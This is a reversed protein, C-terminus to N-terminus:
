YPFFTSDKAQKVTGVFFTGKTPDNYYNEFIYITPDNLDPASWETFAPIRKESAYNGRLGHWSYLAADEGVNLVGKSDSTWVHMGRIFELFTRRGKVGKDKLLHLEGTYNDPVLVVITNQRLSLWVLVGVIIVVGAVPTVAKRNNFSM